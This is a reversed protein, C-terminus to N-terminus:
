PGRPVIIEDDDDDDDDDDGGGGGGGGGNRGASRRDGSENRRIGANSPTDVYNSLSVWYIHVRGDTTVGSRASWAQSRRAHSLAGTAEFRTSSSWIPRDATFTSDNTPSTRSDISDESRDNGGYTYEKWGIGRTRSALPGIVRGYFGYALRRASGDRVCGTHFRGSPECFVRCQEEVPWRCEATKACEGKEQM